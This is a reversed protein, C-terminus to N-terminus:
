FLKNKQLIRYRTDTYGKNWVTWIMEMTPQGGREGFLFDPRWNLALVWAPPNEEFLKTRKAAHWYQSNLLMIVIPAITLAHRIFTESLNFPPNTMIVDCIEVSSLFDKGGIGYGTDRLDSAIIREYGCASIASVMEGTGCAPDWFVYDRNLGLFNLVAFTVEAPTAYFDADRRGNIKSSGTLNQGSLPM